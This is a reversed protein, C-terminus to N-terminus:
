LQNKINEIIEPISKSADVKLIKGQKEFYEIVPKTQNDFVSWRHEFTEKTDDSRKELIGNCLSCVESSFSYISGHIRCVVRNLIREECVEKPCDLFIVKDLKPDFVELDSIQRLWGDLIFGNPYKNVENKVVDGVIQNPALEGKAMATQIQQFNKDSEPIERLLSGTKIFPINLLETLKNAIVTKGAGPPGILLLRNM